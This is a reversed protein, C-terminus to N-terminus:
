PGGQGIWARLDKVHEAYHRPGSEDFWEWANPTVTELAAWRELMRGRWLVLRSRVEEAGMARSTELFAVNKADTDGPELDPVGSRERDLAESAEDLWAAVHFMVDKASWGEPTVSPEEFRERPVQDFLARMERWGADEEALLREADM